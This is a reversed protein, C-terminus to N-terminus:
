ALKEVIKAWCSPQLRKQRFPNASTWTPKFIGLVRHHHLLQSAEMPESHTNSFEEKAFPIKLNMRALLHSGLARMAQPRPLYEHCVRPTIFGLLSSLIVM